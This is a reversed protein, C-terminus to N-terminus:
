WPTSGITGGKFMLGLKVGMYFNHSRGYANHTNPIQWETKNIDLLGISTNINLLFMLTKFYNLEVMRNVAFNMAVDVPKFRETIVGDKMRDPYPLASGGEDRIYVQTAKLLIMVEPGASIWTPYNMYPIQKMVQLPVELYTLRVKRFAEAGAHIGAYNQGAQNICLTTNLGWKKNYFYSMGIGSNIGVTPSYAMEQNGYANQNVILNSNLGAVGNIWYSRKQQTKGDFSFAMVLIVIFFPINKKM